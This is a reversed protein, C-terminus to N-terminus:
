KEFHRIKLPVVMKRMMIGITNIWYEGPVSRKQCTKLLQYYGIAQAM